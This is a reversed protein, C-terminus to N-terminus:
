HTGNRKKKEGVATKQEYVEKFKSNKVTKSINNKSM